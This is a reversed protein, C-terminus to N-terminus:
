LNLLNVSKPPVTCESFHIIIDMDDINWDRIEKLLVTLMLVCARIDEEDITEDSSTSVFFEFTNPTWRCRMYVCQLEMQEFRIFATDMSLSEELHPKEWTLDFLDLIEERNVIHWGYTNIVISHSPIFTHSGTISRAMEMTEQILTLVETPTQQHPIDETCTTDMTEEIVVSQYVPVVQDGM